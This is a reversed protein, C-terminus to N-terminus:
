LWWRAPTTAHRGSWGFLLGLPGALWFLASAGAYYAGISLAFGAAAGILGPKWRYSERSWAVPPAENPPILRQEESM